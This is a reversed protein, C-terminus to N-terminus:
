QKRRSFALGTLGLGLLALTTPEPVVLQAREQLPAPAPIRQVARVRDQSEELITADVARAERRM